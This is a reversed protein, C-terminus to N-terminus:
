HAEVAESVTAMLGGVVGVKSGIEGIQEPPDKVRGFVETSPNVPEQDGAISL